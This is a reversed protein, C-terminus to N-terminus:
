STRSATHKAYPASKADVVIPVGVGTYPELVVSERAVGPSRGVVQEDDLVQREVEAIRRARPKLVQRTVLDIVPGVETPDEDAVELARVHAEALLPLQTVALLLRPLTEALVYSAEGLAAGLEGARGVVVGDRCKLVPHRTGGEDVSEPTAHRTRSTFEEIDRAVVGVTLLRNSRREVGRLALPFLDHVMALSRRRAEFLLLLVVLATTIIVKERRYLALRRTWLAVRALGYWGPVVELLEQICRAWVM